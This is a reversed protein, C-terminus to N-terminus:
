ILKDQYQHIIKMDMNLQNFIFSIITLFFCRSLLSLEMLSFIPLLKRQKKVHAIENRLTSIGEGIDTINVKSFLSYLKNKIKHSSYHEFPYTYRIEKDQTDHYSIAELITAELVLESYLASRNRYGTEHQITSAILDIIWSISADEKLLELWIKILSSLSNAIQNNTIPMDFHSLNEQSLEITNKNLGLSPYVAISRPHEEVNVVILFTECYVPKFSLFSFLSAIHSISQYYDEVTKGETHDWNFRLEIDNKKFFYSEPYKQRITNFAQRLEQSAIEDESYLYVSIDDSIPSFSGTTYLSLEEEKEQILYNPDKKFKVLDKFGTPYFFEQMNTLTFNTSHFLQDISSLHYGILLYSFGTQGSYSVYNRVYNGAFTNLSFNKGILTCPVGQELFGHIYDTSGLGYDKMATYTLVSGEEISYKIEGFFRKEYQNPFFFEGKWHKNTFLSEM